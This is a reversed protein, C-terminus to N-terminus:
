LLFTRLNFELRRQSKANKSFIRRMYEKYENFSKTKGKKELSSVTLTKPELKTAFININDQPLSVGLILGPLGGFVSPGTSIPIDPCYFAVVYVSDFLLGNARRCEYGLIDMRENTFKWIIPTQKDKIGVVEGAVNKEIYISDRKLDKLVVQTPMDKVFDLNNIPDNRQVQEFSCFSDNFHLLYERTVFKDKVLSQLYESFTADSVEDGIIKKAREYQNIKLDYRVEGSLIVANYQANLVFCHMNFIIIIILTKM